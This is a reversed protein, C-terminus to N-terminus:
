WKEGAVEGYLTFTLASGTGSKVAINGAVLRDGFPVELVIYDNAAVSKGFLLATTEDYTTGNIDHFVSAAAATGTTNAIFLTAAEYPQATSPSFLSAATTDAPRLQGLQRKM